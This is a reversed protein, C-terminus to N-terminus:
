ILDDEIPEFDQSASRTGALSQDDRVKQINGLGAGIGKKGAFAYPFFNIAVNAWCGSYLESQNIIPQLTRDVVEPPYDAKASATLVWHGKCEPGFPDGNTKKEDGDRLPNPVVPPKANNWKGTMGAKEAEAMAKDIAQKTAVDTKPILITTSYKEEGGPTASHPKFVHVFSLRGQVRVRSGELKVSM